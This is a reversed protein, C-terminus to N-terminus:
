SRRGSARFNERAYDLTVIDSEAIDCPIITGGTVAIGSTMMTIFAAIDPHAQDLEDSGAAVQLEDLGPINVVVPFGAASSFKFAGVEEVDSTATATNSTLASIDVGTVFSALSIIGGVLPDILAALARIGETYQTLTLGTGVHVQFSAQDGDADQIEYVVDYVAM